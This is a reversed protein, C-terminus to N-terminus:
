IIVGKPLNDARAFIVYRCPRYDIIDARYDNDHTLFLACLTAVM